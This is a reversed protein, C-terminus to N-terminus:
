PVPTSGAELLFSYWCYKWPTYLRGTRLASLRVVKIHQNDLFEPRKLRRSGEPGTWAQITNGKGKVIRKGSCIVDFEM